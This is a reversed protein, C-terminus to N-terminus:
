NKAAPKRRAFTLRRVQWEDTMELPPVAARGGRGAFDKNVMHLDRLKWIPSQSESNVIFANIFSRPLMKKGSKGFTIKVAVDEYAPTTKTARRLTPKQAAVTIDSRSLTLSSNGRLSNELRNQFYTGARTAEGGQKRLERKTDDIKFQLDYVEAVVGKSSKAATLALEGVRLQDRLGMVWYGAVPLLVLSVIIIWKELDFTKM